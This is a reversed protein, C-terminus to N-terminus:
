QLQWHTTEAPAYSCYGGTNITKAFHNYLDTHVKKIYELAEKIRSSVSKRNKETDDSFKRVSGGKGKSTKLIKKLEEIQSEINSLREIDGEISANTKEEELYLLCRQYDEISTKDTVYDESNKAFFITDNKDFDESQNSNFGDIKVKKGKEVLQQKNNITSVAISKLETACISKNPHCLLYHIYNLGLSDSPRITKKNYTIEWTGKCWRFVNEALTEGPEQKRQPLLTKPQKALSLSRLAAEVSAVVKMDHESFKSKVMMIIANRAALIALLAYIEEDTIKETIRSLKRVRELANILSSDITRNSINNSQNWILEYETCLLSYIERAALTKTSPYDPIDEPEPQNTKIEVSPCQWVERAEKIFAICRNIKKSLTIPSNKPIYYINKGFLPCCNAWSDEILSNDTEM